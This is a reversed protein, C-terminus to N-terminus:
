ATLRRDYWHLVRLARLTNWRSPRGDGDEFALQTEGPHTNELLWTGDPQRKDRVLQVAEAIRGDPAEGTRRFHDLARLADYHWRPPWSFELWHENPVEGTSKRRFLHRELLYEEGRRRAEAVTITGGSQEYELLGELVCLTSDFSSVTSGQETECNWGGDELQEDLLGMVLGDVDAGFYAGISLTRGNICAEVEGDFFAQGEHEWRCNAAVLPITERAAPGRPDLGLDHLLMLTPLTSTWPQGTSFDPTIGARWDDAIRRPFCAGGDWQGDPDRLALLRAGWGETEVRAREATVQEAPAGVLDRLAQWRIAPDGDLLWDRVDM